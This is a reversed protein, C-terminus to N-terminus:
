EPFGYCSMRTPEVPVSPSAISARFGFQFSRDAAIYSNWELSGFQYRPAFDPYARTSWSQEIVAGNALTIFAYWRAFAETGTNRITVAAVFGTRVGQDEIIPDVRYTVTCPLLAAQAPSAMGLATGVAMVPALLWALLRLHRTGSHQANNM